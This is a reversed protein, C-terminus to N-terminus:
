FKLVLRAVGLNNCYLLSLNFIKMDKNMLFITSKSTQHNCPTLISQAKNKEIRIRLKKHM